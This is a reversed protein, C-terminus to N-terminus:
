ALPLWRNPEQSYPIGVASTLIEIVKRMDPGVEALDFIGYFVIRAQVTDIGRRQAFGWLEEATSIGITKLRERLQLGFRWTAENSCNVKGEAMRGLVFTTFRQAGDKWTKEESATEQDTQM